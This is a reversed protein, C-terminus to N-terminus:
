RPSENCALSMLKKITREAREPEMKGYKEIADGDEAINELCVWLFGFEDLKEGLFGIDIETSLNETDLLALIDARDKILKGKEWDPRESRGARLREARDWTAKLKLLLLTTREPVAVSVDDSISKSVTRRALVDDYRLRESRGEFPDPDRRMLFDIVIEGYPTAKSFYRMDGAKCSKYGRNMLYSKLSNKTKSNVILDIDVSGYWRNYLYVAWGGILVLAAATVKEDRAWGAIAILGEKSERIIEQEGNSPPM